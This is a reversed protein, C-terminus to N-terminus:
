MKSYDLTIAVTELLFADLAEFDDPLDDLSKVQALGARKLRENNRKLIRLEKEERIEMREKEVLTIATDDKEALYEKIDRDLYTFEVEHKIREKHMQTLKNIDDKLDAFMQYEASKINDWPLANKELSEGTDEHAIASPFIIDPIVGRHQTSGGDIRYFKAITYQVSGIVDADSDYFRSIRRHQQVTGKGFTQEGVIIARGYDQLAAAFIESASASYRNVLVTLPGEYSVSENTDRQIEIQNRSDRVQVVPGEGIFLGTALTAEALSGGGNNRLDIIIGEVNQNKLKTLSKDIDQSLKVYFSPITIVGIKKGEIQEVSSKAERDELHIKERVIEIVRHEAGSKGSQIQLQVTTGKPGKILEVIDDLRWGIIDVIKEGDQGVGIIKDDKAILKSREAPGGPVLSRVVTYDDELQLVAGIGELSLNMEMKFREANRPSLYSTHPEITHSYANMFTQFVDESETQTLQKIASNYRKTLREKIDSWAKGTLKLSLADSKVKQQWMKDLEASTKVWPAESRDFQYSDQSDFKIETQLLSLAYNYREYRRTLNLQYIAYVPELLGSKLSDDLSYQYTKLKDIDSQLFIQKNFDLLDIYRSFIKGSLEDDLPIFKYHSRNFLDSVRKVVKAHQEQQTLQPIDKVDFNASASIFGVFFLGIIILSHHFFKNM